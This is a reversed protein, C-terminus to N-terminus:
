TKEVLGKTTLKTAGIQIASDDTNFRKLLKGSTLAGAEDLAQQIDQEGALM